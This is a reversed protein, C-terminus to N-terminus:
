VLQISNQWLLKCVCMGSLLISLLVDQDVLLSELRLGSNLCNLWYHELIQVEVLGVLHWLKDGLVYRTTLIQLHSRFLDDQDGRVVYHLGAKHGLILWHAVDRVYM